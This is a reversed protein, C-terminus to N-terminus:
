TIFTRKTHQILHSPLHAWPLPAVLSLLTYLLSELDDRSTADHFPQHLDISMFQHDAGSRSCTDIMMEGDEGRMSRGFGCLVVERGGRVRFRRPNIDGHVYGLLGFDKVVGWMKQSVEKFGEKSLRKLHEEVSEPLYEM